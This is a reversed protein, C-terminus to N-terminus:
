SPLRKAVVVSFQPVERGREEGIDGSLSKEANIDFPLRTSVVELGSKGRLSEVFTDVIQTIARYDSTQQITIRGSIEAVQYRGEDATKPAQGPAAPPGKATETKAVETVFSARATASIEWAIRDLEIQPADTLARSIDLLMADIGTTQRQIVQYNKVLAQLNERSTPTKPFTQQMRAYQEAAAAEQRRDTAALQNVQYANLFKLGALVVCFGCVAAGAALLAARARWHFYFRRLSAEAYQEPPQANALVHMFLREALMGEPAARLGAKRCAADIDIVHFRLRETSVCAAEYTAVDAGPALVYADLTGSERQLLRLNVLYQQMRASEAACASALSAPKGSEPRGLRSFRLAGDEVFSQRLGSKQNSVLLYKKESIGIRRAAIPAVLSVSYVGVVRAENSRLAAFWPQFQQTNTFSSYLIREERRETKEYGLSMALALSSDRYRQAIKRALLTKRDKGRVFPINEQFFDEDIVDAVLYYLLKPSGGLYHAFETVGQDNAEFAGDAILKGAQWSYAQLGKATLYLLRKDAM